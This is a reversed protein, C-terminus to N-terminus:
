NKDYYYELSDTSLDLHSPQINWGSIELRQENMPIDKWTATVTRSEGPLLCFYNDEFYVYGSANVPRDDELWLFMTSISGNNTLTITHENERVKSKLASISLTTPACFLLPALNSTRSFAYRNQCLVIDDRDLLQLDLFFVDQLIPAFREQLIALRTSCNAAFSIKDFYEACPSGDIGILRMQLKIDKYSQETSNCIWAEAEFQECEEWTLSDFRASLVL